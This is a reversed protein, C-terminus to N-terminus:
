RSKKQKQESIFATEITFLLNLAQERVVIKQREEAELKQLKEANYIVALESFAQSHDM